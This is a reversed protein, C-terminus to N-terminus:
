PQTVVRYFRAMTTAPNTDVFTATTALYTTLHSWLLLNSSTQVEYLFDPQVNLNCKFQGAAPTPNM